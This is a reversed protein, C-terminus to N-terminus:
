SPAGPPPWTSCRTSRRATSRRAGEATGQVEVFEGTGTMVVNM